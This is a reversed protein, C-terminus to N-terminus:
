RYSLSFAGAFDWQAEAPAGREIERGGGCAVAAGHAAILRGRQRNFGVMCSVLSGTSKADLTIAITEPPPKERSAIAAGLLDSAGPPACAATM